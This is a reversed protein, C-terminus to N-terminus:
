RRGGMKNPLKKERYYGKGGAAARQVDCPVVPANVGLITWFFAKIWSPKKLM